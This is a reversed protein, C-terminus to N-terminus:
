ITRTLEELEREAKEMLEANGARRHYGILSRLKDRKNATEKDYLRKRGLPKPKILLEKWHNYSTRWSNIWHIEFCCIGDNDIHYTYRFFAGTDKNKFLTTAMEQGRTIPLKCHNCTTEKKAYSLKM